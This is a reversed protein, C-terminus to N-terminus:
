AKRQSMRMHGGGLEYPHHKKRDNRVNRTVSSSVSGGCVSEVMAGM